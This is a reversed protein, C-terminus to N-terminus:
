FTFKFVEVGWYYGKCLTGKDKPFDALFKKFKEIANYEDYASFPVGVSYGSPSVIRLLGSGIQLNM